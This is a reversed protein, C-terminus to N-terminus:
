ESATVEGLTKARKQLLHGTILCERRMEVLAATAREFLERDAATSFNRRKRREEIKEEIRRAEDLYTKAWTNYDAHKM